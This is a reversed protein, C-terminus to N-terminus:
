QNVEEAEEENVMMQYLLGIDQNMTTSFARLTAYADMHGKGLDLHAFTPAAAELSHIASELRALAKYFRKTRKADMSVGIGEGADINDLETKKDDTKTM